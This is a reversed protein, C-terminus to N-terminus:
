CSFIMRPSATPTANTRYPFSPSASSIISLRNPSATLKEPSLAGFERRQGARPDRKFLVCDKSVATDVSERECVGAGTRIRRDAFEKVNGDRVNRVVNTARGDRREAEEEEAVRLLHRSNNLEQTLAVVRVDSVSTRHGESDGASSGTELHTKGSGRQRGARARVSKEPRIPHM